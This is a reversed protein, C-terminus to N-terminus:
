VIISNVHRYNEPTVGVIQKFKKGFYSPSEFGCMKGIEYARKDPYQELFLRAWGIRILTLHTLITHHMERKFLVCVYEKSLNVEDAIDDLSIQEQYHSDLYAIIMQVTDNVEAYNDDYSLQKTKGSLDNLLAYCHKSYDAQAASQAHLDLFGSLAKSFVSTDSLQYVGSEELGCTDTILESCPGTYGILYITCDDTLPKSTMQVHPRILILQESSVVNRQGDIIFEGKGQKCYYLLFFSTGEPYNAVELKHDVGLYALALPLNRSNRTSHIISYIMLTIEKEILVLESYPKILITIYINYYKYQTGKLTFFIIQGLCWAIDKLVYCYLKM